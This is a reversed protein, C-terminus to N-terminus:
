DIRRKLAADYCETMMGFPHINRYRESRRAIDLITATQRQYVLIPLRRDYVIPPLYLAAAINEPASNGCFALTPLANEDAAWQRLLDRVYDSEIGAAVFEWEVDLFDEQPVHTDVTEGEKGGPRRLTHHSLRFLPEYRGKLFNMEREADPDIFTIRTRIGRTDFNPYHAIHAGTIGM